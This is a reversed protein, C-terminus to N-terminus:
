QASNIVQDLVRISEMVEEFSPPGGFIMPIMAKYDIRLADIMQKSPEIAFSGRKASALDFDRRDFFMRAHRVCDSALEYDKVAEPGLASRFVRHLDYYHRSVRQGEQRLEGRIERWRRVGHVIVVKDWFTRVAEITTVGSVTFDLSAAEEAVYPRIAAAQHPDLASKAGSEIRVARRIYGSDPEIVTPYWVLLSRGM